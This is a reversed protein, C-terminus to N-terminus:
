IRFFNKVIFLFMKFETKLSFSSKEGRTWKVPFECIKYHHRQARILLHADWFWGRRRTKDVGIEDLLPILKVTNFAKFGCQHDKVKTGFLLWLGNNYCVSIIRRFLEREPREGMYRSGLSIDHGNEINQLLQPLYDLDTALDADVYGCIPYKAQKFAIGLNERRSPGNMNLVRVNRLKPVNQETKDTSGDNVVILEFTKTIASLSSHVQKVTSAIIKEENYVPIFMSVKM